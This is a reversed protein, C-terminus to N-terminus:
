LYDSSLKIFSVVGLDVDNVNIYACKCIQPDASDGLYKPLKRSLKNCIADTVLWQGNSIIIRESFYRCGMWDGTYMCVNYPLIDDVCM